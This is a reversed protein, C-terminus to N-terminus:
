NARLNWTTLTKQGAIKSLLVKSCTFVAFVCMHTHAMTQRALSFVLCGIFEATYHNHNTSHQRQRGTTNQTSGHGYIYIHAHSHTEEITYVKKESRRDEIDMCQRRAYFEAFEDDYKIKLKTKRM